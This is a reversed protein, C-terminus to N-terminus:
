SGDATRGDRKHRARVYIEWLADQEAKTAKGQALAGRWRGRALRLEAEAKAKEDPTM